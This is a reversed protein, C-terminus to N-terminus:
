ASRREFLALRARLEGEVSARRDLEAALGLRQELNELQAVARRILDHAGSRTCRLHEALETISWDEDLHLRCAERQHDTLVGGYVDLLRQRHAHDATSTPTGSSTL